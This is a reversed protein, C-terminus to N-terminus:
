DVFQNNCVPLRKLILDREEALRDIKTTSAHAHIHTAGHHKACIEKEFNESRQNLNKTQGIYLPKWRHPRVEKCFIYNGPEETFSADISYIEYKYTQGSKGKWSIAPAESM